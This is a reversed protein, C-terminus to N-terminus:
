QHPGTAPASVRIALWRSQWLACTRNRSSRILNQSSQCDAQKVIPTQTALEKATLRVIFGVLLAGTFLSVGGSQLGRCDPNHHWEPGTHVLAGGALDVDLQLEATM